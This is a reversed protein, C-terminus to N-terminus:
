IIAFTMSFIFAFIIFLIFLNEKTLSQKTAKFQFLLAQKKNKAQLISKLKGKLSRQEAEAAEAALLSDIKSNLSGCHPCRNNISDVTQGCQSCSNM